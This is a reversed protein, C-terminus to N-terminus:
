IIDFTKTKNYILLIIEDTLNKYFELIKKDDIEETYSEIKEILKLVCKHLKNDEKNYEDYISKLDVTRSCILSDIIEKKPVTTFNKISEDYTKAFKDKLNNIKINQYQPYDKNLHILEILKILSCYGSNLIKKKDKTSIKDIDEDGFSVKINNTINNITGNNTNNVTNNGIKNELEIIKNKLKLIEDSNILMNKKSKCTKEHRTVCYNRSFNKNCYKCNYKNPAFLTSNQAILTSNQAILTSSPIVSNSHYKKNHNCLSSKSSYYKNCSNCRVSNNDNMKKNM